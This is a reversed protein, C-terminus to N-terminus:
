VSPCEAQNVPKAHSTQEVTRTVLGAGVYKSMQREAEEVNARNM